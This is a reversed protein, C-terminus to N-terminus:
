SGAGLFYTGEGSSGITAQQTSLFQAVSQTVTMGNDITLFGITNNGAAVDYTVTYPGQQLLALDGVGPKGSTVWNAPASWSSNFGVWSKTVGEASNAFGVVAVAAVFIARRRVLSDHFRRM